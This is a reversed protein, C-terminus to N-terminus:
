HTSLTFNIVTLTFKITCTCLSIICVNYNNNYKYTIKTSLYFKCTIPTFIFFHRFTNKLGMERWSMTSWSEGYSEKKMIQSNSVEQSLHRLPKGIGKGYFSYKFNWM